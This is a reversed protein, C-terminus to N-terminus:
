RVRPRVVPIDAQEIAALSEVCQDTSVNVLERDGASGNQQHAAEVLPVHPALGVFM